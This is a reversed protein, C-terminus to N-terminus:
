FSLRAKKSYQVIDERRSVLSDLVIGDDVLNSKITNLYQALEKQTQREKNWNNISLAILIGIVVLIIEGLAYLLYKRVNDGTGGKSPHEILKKRINRFFTLM